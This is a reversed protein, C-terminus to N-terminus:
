VDSFPRSRDNLSQKYLCQIFNQNRAHVRRELCERGSDARHFDPGTGACAVDGRGPGPSIRSCAFISVEPRRWPLHHTWMVGPASDGAFFIHTLGRNISLVVRRCYMPLSSGSPKAIHAPMISLWANAAALQYPVNIKHQKVGIM